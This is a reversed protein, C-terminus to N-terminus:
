DGDRLREYEALSEKVHERLVDMMKSAPERMYRRSPWRFPNSMHHLMDLLFRERDESEVGAEFRSRQCVLCVKGPQTLNECISTRCKVRMM